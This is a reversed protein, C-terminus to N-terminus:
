KHQTKLLYKKDSKIKKVGNYFISKGHTDIGGSKLLDEENIAKLISLELKKDTAMNGYYGSYYAEVSIAKNKLIKAFYHICKELLKCYDDNEKILRHTIDPYAPHAYSFLIHPIKGIGNSIDQLGIKKPNMPNTRGENLDKFFTNLAKDYPNICFTLIHFKEPKRFTYGDIDKEIASIEAGLVVKLNIYKQPNQAIIEVAKKCGQITNHDTIAIIFPKNTQQKYINAYSVAQALLEEVSLLGDSATTHIHLNAGFKKNKVNTLEYSDPIAEKDVPRYGPYYFDPKNTNESLITKLEHPGVISSLDNTDVNELGCSNIINQKYSSDPTCSKLFIDNTSARFTLPFKKSFSTIKNTNFVNNFNSVTLMKLGLNIVSM